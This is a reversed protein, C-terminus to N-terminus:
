YPIRDPNERWHQMPGLCADRDMQVMDIQREARGELDNYIAADDFGADAADERTCGYHIIPIRAWWAAAYCMPCPECTTYLECDALDFRGLASCADRIAVIEAHATPDNRTVVQNHGRAIVKGEHVVVAGFPGGHGREVGSRAEAVAEAMYANM